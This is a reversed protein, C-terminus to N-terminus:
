LARLCLRIQGGDGIPDFTHFSVLRGNLNDLTDLINEHVLQSRWRTGSILLPCTTNSTCLIDLRISSAFMWCRGSRQALLQITARNVEVDFTLPSLPLVKRTCSRKELVLVPLLMRIVTYSHDSEFNKQAAAIDDTSAKMQDM